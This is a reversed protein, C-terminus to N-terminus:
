ECYKFTQLSFDCRTKQIKTYQVPQKAPQGSEVSKYHYLKLSFSDILFFSPLFECHNISISYKSFKLCQEVCCINLESFRMLGRLNSCVNDKKRSCPVSGLPPSYNTWPCLKYTTLLSPCASNFRALDRPELM